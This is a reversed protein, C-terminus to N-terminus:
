RLTKLLTKIEQLDEGIRKQNERIIILQEKEEVSMHRNKDEMHRMLREKEVESVIYKGNRAITETKQSETDFTRNNIADVAKPVFTVLYGLMMTLLSIVLAKYIWEYRNRVKDTMTYSM